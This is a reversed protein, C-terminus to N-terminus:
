GATPLARPHNGQMSSAAQNRGGSRAGPGPDRLDELSAHFAWAMVLVSMYQAMITMDIYRGTQIIAAIMMSPQGKLVATLGAESSKIDM